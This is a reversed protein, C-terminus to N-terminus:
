FLEFRMMNRGLMLATRLATAINDKTTGATASQVRSTRITITSAYRIAYPVPM